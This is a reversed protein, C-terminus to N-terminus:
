HGGRELGKPLPKATKFHEDRETLSQKFDHQLSDFEGDLNKREIPTKSTTEFPSYPLLQEDIDTGTREASL